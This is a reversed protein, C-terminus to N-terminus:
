LVLVKLVLWVGFSLEDKFSRVFEDIGPSTGEFVYANRHKMVTDM